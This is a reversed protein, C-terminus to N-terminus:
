ANEKIYNRLVNVEFVYHDYCVPEGRHNECDAICDCAWSCYRPYNM